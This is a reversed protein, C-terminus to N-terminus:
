HSSALRYVMGRFATYGGFRDFYPDQHCDQYGYDAFRKGKTNHRPCLACLPLTMEPAFPSPTSMRLICRCDMYRVTMNFVPEWKMTLCRCVTEIRPTSNLAARSSNAPSKSQSSEESLSATQQCEVFPISVAYDRM